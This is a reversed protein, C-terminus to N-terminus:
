TNEVYGGFNHENVSEVMTKRKLNFLDPTDLYETPNGGSGLAAEYGANRILNKITQNESGGGYPYSYVKIPIGLKSELFAKSYSLEHKIVVPPLHQLPRHTVGHSGIEFGAKQMEIVEPWLLHNVKWYSECAVDWSNDKREVESILSTVLFLTATFGFEKLIPFVETYVSEYGDDLTLIFFKAQIPSSRFALFQDFSITQYGYDKFLAMQKRFTEVTVWSRSHEIDGQVKHYMCIPIPIHSTSSM